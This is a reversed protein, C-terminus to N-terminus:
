AVLHDRWKVAIVKLRKRYPLWKAESLLSGHFGAPPETGFITQVFVRNKVATAIDDRLDLARTSQKLLAEHANGFEEIIKSKPDSAFLSPLYEEGTLKLLQEIELYYASLNERMQSWADPTLTIRKQAM